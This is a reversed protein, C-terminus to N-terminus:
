WKSFPQIVLNSNFYKPDGTVEEGLWDPKQFEQNESSLEVEALILGYNEGLFEDVEWVLGQYRLRYRKKEILPKECVLDLMENAESIPIEYEYELRSAGSTIGKIALYGKNGITRVRVVREKCRSLYGQRCLIGRALNRWADGKVLFKREVEQGM